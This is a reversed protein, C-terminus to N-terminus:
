PNFGAERTDRRSEEFGSVTEGGHYELRLVKFYSSEETIVEIASGAGRADRVGQRLIAPTFARGNVAVIKMGPGFGAKDAVGGKLVDTLIGSSGVHFGLSYWFEVSGRQSDEMASWSNPKDSYSLRYGGNQLGGLPAHAYNSDLRERLFRRGGIM